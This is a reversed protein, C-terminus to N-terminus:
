RRRLGTSRPRVYHHDCLHIHDGIALAAGGYVRQLTELKMVQDPPGHAYVRRNLLVITNTHPLLLTPDHCSVIVLKEKALQAILQALDARGHPDVASLPEDMLLVPPNSALAKAILVRQRQGGSLKWLSKRWLKEPLEVAKLARRALKSAESRPYGRAQLYSELLELPTVPYGHEEAVLQPVYGVLKGAREPHGTVDAGCITVRGKVPKLLGVITRFLTTKGAGNPGLVQVLGPGEFELTIDDLVKEGGLIVTVGKVAVSPKM